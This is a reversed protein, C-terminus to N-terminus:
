DYMKTRAEHMNRKGDNTGEKISCPLIVPM